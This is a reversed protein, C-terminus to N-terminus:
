TSTSTKLPANLVQDPPLVPTVAAAAAAPAAPASAAPPSPPPPSGGAAAPAAEDPPLFLAEHFTLPDAPDDQIDFDGAEEFTDFGEADLGRQYQESKVMSRITDMLDPPTDYGVPPAMPVPDPHERGQKDIGSSVQVGDADFTPKVCFEEVFEGIPVGLHSKKM